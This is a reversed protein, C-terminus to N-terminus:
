LRSCGRSRHEGTSKPIRDTCKRRLRVTAMMTMVDHAYECSDAWLPQTAPMRADGFLHTAELRSAMALKLMMAIRREGVCDHKPPDVPTHEVRIYHHNLLVVLEAKTFETGDGSRLCEGISPVGKTNINALLCAFVKPVDSKKKSFYPLGLRSYDDVITM